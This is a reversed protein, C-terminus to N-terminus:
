LIHLIGFLYWSFLALVYIDQHVDDSDDEEDIVAPLTESLSGTSTDKDPDTTDSSNNPNITFTELQKSEFYKAEAKVIHHCRSSWNELAISASGEKTLHTVDDLKPTTNNVAIWDKITAWLLQKTNLDLYHPPLHLISHGTEALVENIHNTPHHPMHEKILNYLDPHLLSTINQQVVWEQMHQIVAPPKLKKNYQPYKRHFPCLITASKICAKRQDM